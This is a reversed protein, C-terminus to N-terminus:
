SGVQVPVAAVAAPSPALTAPAALPPQAAAPASPVPVTPASVSLVPRNAHLAARKTAQHEHTYWSVVVGGVAAIVGKAGTQLWPAFQALVGGVVTTITAILSTIENM